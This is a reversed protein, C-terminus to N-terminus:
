LVEETKKDVMKSESERLRTEELSSLEKLQSPLDSRSLLYALAEDWFEDRTRENFNVKRVKRLDQITVPNEGCRALLNEKIRNAHSQVALKRESVNGYHRRAGESSGSSANKSRQYAKLEKMAELYTRRSIQTLIEALEVDEDNMVLRNDAIAFLAALRAKTRTAHSELPNVMGMQGIRRARRLERHLEETPFIFVPEDYSGWNPLVVDLPELEYNSTYDWDDLDLDEENGEITVPVWLCRGALGAAIADENFFFDSRKPQTNIQWCSRYSGAAMAMLSGDAKARSIASGSHHMLIVERITSGQRSGRAELLGSEDIGFLQNHAPDRWEYTSPISGKHKIEYKFAMNAGEGSVPETAGYYPRLRPYNWYLPSEGNRVVASKGTGTGGVVVQILNLPEEGLSSKLMVNYPTEHAIQMLHTGVLAIPRDGTIQSVYLCHDITERGKALEFFRDELNLGQASEEVEKLWGLVMEQYTFDTQSSSPGRWSIRVANGLSHGWEKDPDGSNHGRVDWYFKLKNFVERTGRERLNVLEVLRTLYSFLESNGFGRNEDIEEIFQSSFVSPSRDDLDDLFDEIDPAESEAWTAPSEPTLSVLYQILEDPAPAFDSIRLPRGLPEGDPGYVVIPKGTGLHTGSIVVYRQVDSIIDIRGGMIKSPLRMRHGQVLYGRKRRPSDPGRGSISITNTLSVGVVAELERFAEGTEDDNDLYIAFRSEDRSGNVHFYGTIALNRHPYQEKWLARQAETPPQGGYGTVGSVINTKGDPGLPITVFSEDWFHEETTAYTNNNLMM